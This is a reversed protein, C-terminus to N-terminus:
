GTSDTLTASIAPKAIPASSTERSRQIPTLSSNLSNTGSGSENLARAPAAGLAGAEGM